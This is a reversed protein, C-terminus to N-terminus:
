RVELVSTTTGVGERTMTLQQTYNWGEAATLGIRHSAAKLYYLGDYAEGTGRVGVIGPATVIRGLRAPSVECQATVVADTSVDTRAQAQLFSQLPGLQDSDNWLVIRGSTVLAPRTALPPLRTSVLTLVPLPVFPEVSTEMSAGVYREPALADFTASFTDATSTAGVAVDILASPAGFRLPPGWYATNVLPARPTVHFLYGNREALRRVFARPSEAQQPVYDIPVLASPTPVLVPVIGLALFPALVTAVIEVDTQAPYEFPVQVLDMVVSIDEGTVVFLTDDPGNGPVYQQHTIIGDILPTMEGNVSATLMVRSLPALLPDSVIDFAQGAAVLEALFTLQFGCPAQDQQTVEVGRLARMLHAPATTPVGFGIRMGVTISALASM